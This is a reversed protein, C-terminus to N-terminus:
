HGSGDPLHAALERQRDPAMRDYVRWWIAEHDLASIEGRERQSDAHGLVSVLSKLEAFLTITLADNRGDMLVANITRVQARTSGTMACLVAGGGLYLLTSLGLAAFPTTTVSLVIMLALWVFAGCVPWARSLRLGRREEASTGPPYVVLRYRTVGYRSPFMELAGWIPGSDLLRLWWRARRDKDM